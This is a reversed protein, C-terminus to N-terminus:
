DNEPLAPPLGDVSGLSEQPLLEYYTTPPVSQNSKLYLVTAVTGGILVLIILITAQTDTKIIGFSAARVLQTLVSRQPSSKRYEEEYFKISPPRRNESM